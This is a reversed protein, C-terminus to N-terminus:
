KGLRESLIERLLIFDVDRTITNNYITHGTKDVLYLQPIPYFALAEGLRNDGFIQTWNMSHKELAKRFASSDKDLSFSILTFDAGNYKDNIAKLGPMEQVCPSCWSAWLQVLVYKGGLKSLEIKNNNIDTVSFDPFKGNSSVNIKNQIINHLHIAAKSDKYDASVVDKYLQMLSDPKLFISHVSETLLTWFSIYLDPYQRIFAIKKYGISDGLAFAKQLTDQNSGFINKNRFYFAFFAEEKEKIFSQFMEGGMEKYPITNISTKEDITYYEKIDSLPSLHVETSGKRFFAYRMISSTDSTKYGIAIYGFPAFLEGRWSLTDPNIKHELIGDHVTISFGNSKLPATFAFKIYVSDNAAASLSVLLFLIGATHQLFHKM